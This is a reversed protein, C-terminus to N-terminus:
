EHSNLWSELIITAAMADLPVKNPKIGRERMIRKAAFSSLHEDISDVPLQYKIKLTEIFSLAAHYTTKDEFDTNYPLGVVLQNPRWENILAQIQPWPPIGEQTKLTVLPQATRTILQGVAVGIRKTGFDFGLITKSPHM